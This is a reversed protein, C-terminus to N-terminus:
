RAATRCFSASGGAWPVIVRLPKTPYDQAQAYMGGFAALAVALVIQLLKLTSIKIMTSEGIKDPM